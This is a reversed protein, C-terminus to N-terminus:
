AVFCVYLDKGKFMRIYDQAKIISDEVNNGEYFWNEYFPVFNESLNKIYIDGGLILVRNTKYLELISDVERMPFAFNEIGNGRLSEGLHSCLDLIRNM